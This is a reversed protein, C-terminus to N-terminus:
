LHHELVVTKRNAPKSLNKIQKSKNTPRFHSRISHDEKCRFCYEPKKVSKVLRAPLLAVLLKEIVIVSCHLCRLPNTMYPYIIFSFHNAKLTESLTPSNFILIVYKQLIGLVYIVNQSKLYEFLAKISERVWIHYLFYQKPIFNEFRIIISM